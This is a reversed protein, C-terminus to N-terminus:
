VSSIVFEWFSIAIPCAEITQKVAGQLVNRGKWRNDVSISIKHKELSDVVMGTSLIMDWMGSSFM